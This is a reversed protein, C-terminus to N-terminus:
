DARSANWPSPLPISSMSPPRWASASATQISVGASTRPYASGPANLGGSNFFDSYFGSVFGGNPGVTPYNLPVAADLNGNPDFTDSKLTLGDTGTMAGDSRFGLIDGGDVAEGADMKIYFASNNAPNGFGFRFPQDAAVLANNFKLDFTATIKQGIASLDLPPFEQYVAPRGALEVTGDPEKLGADPHLADVDNISVLATFGTASQGTLVLNGSGGYLYQKYDYEGWADPLTFVTVTVTYDKTSSDAATVVYHVPDTFDQRSGSAPICTAGSSVTYTPKLATVDTGLPLTISIATDVITAAGYSPFTFSLIDKDSSSPPTYYLHTTDTPADYTATFDGVGTKHFWPNTDIATQDGKLYMDGGGFNVEGQTYQFASGTYSSNLTGGTMNFVGTGGSWGMWIQGSNLMGGELNFTGNGNRGLLLTWGGQVLNLTGGSLTYTGQHAGYGPELNNVTMSGGTQSVSGPGGNIGIYFGGNITVTDSASIVPGAIDVLPQNGGTPVVGGQWNAGDNWAGAAPGSYSIGSQAMVQGSGLFVAASLPLALALHKLHDRLSSSTNKEIKM